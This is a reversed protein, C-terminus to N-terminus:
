KTAEESVGINEEVLTIDTIEANDSFGFMVDPDKALAEEAAIRAENPGTAEVLVTTFTKFVVEYENM